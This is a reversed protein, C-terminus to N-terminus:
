ICLQTSWIFYRYVLPM